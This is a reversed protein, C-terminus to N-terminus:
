KIRINNQKDILTQNIAEDSGGEGVDILMPYFQLVFCILLCRFFKYNHPKTIKMIILGSLKIMLM